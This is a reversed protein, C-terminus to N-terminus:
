DTGQAGILAIVSWLNYKSAFAVDTLLLPIIIQMRLLDDDSIPILNGDDSDPIYTFPIKGFPNVGEVNDVARMEDMVVEGEGNIIFFEDDSWVSFRRKKVDNTDTFLHKVFHTPREPEVPDDSIPTYNQSTLIRMRPIGDRDLYPELSSHKHLKFYRNAMKMKQDSRLSGSYLDILDQDADNMDVPTRLAPERYVGARKNVIPQSINITVIRNILETVTEPKQFENQISRKILERIKGNYADFRAKDDKVRNINDTSQVIESIDKLTLSM